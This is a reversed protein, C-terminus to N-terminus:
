DVRVRFSVTGSGGSAVSAITWTLTAGSLTGSNSASGAVYATGTPISDSIVVDTAGGTGTNNYTITYTIEEGQSAQAKDVTKTLTINPTQPIPGAGQPQITIQHNSGLQTTFYLTGKASSNLTQTQVVQGTDLNTNTITFQTNPKLDVILHKSTGTGSVNYIINENFGGATETKSFMVIRTDNVAVTLKAGTMNNSSADIRETLIMATNSSDTAQIVNLFPYDQDSRDNDTLYTSWGASQLKNVALNTPSLTKVFMKADGNIITNLNGLITPENVSKLIWKPYYTPKAVRIRDFVIVYDPRLFVINRAYNELLNISYSVSNYTDAAQGLSYVYDTTAEFKEIVGPGNRKSLQISDTSGNNVAITNYNITSGGIYAATAVNAPAALWQKKYIYFSNQDLHQHDTIGGKLGGSQFAIWTANQSWDSRAYIFGTGDGDFYSLPLEAINREPTSSNYWLLDQWKNYNYSVKNSSTNKLYWQAHESSVSGKFEGALLQMITREYDDLWGYSQSGTWDGTPLISDLKPQTNYIINRILAEPFGTDKFLNEGTATKLAQYYQLLFLYSAPSYDSGEFLWGGHKYYNLFQPKALNEYKSYRVLDFWEAARPNDGFSAIATLGGGIIRGYFFNNNSNDVAWRGRYEPGYFYYDAWDNLRTWIMQKEEKTFTNYFWDYAVAVIPPDYRAYYCPLYGGTPTKDDPRSANYVDWMITKAKQLYVDNGTVLYAIAYNYFGNQGSTYGDVANKLAAWEPANVDKKARLTQLIEPTLWIRPHAGIGRNSITAWDKDSLGSSNTVTLEIKYDGLADITFTPKNAGQIGTTNNPSINADRLNSTAPKSVFRWQYTLNESSEVTDSSKTGDLTILANTAGGQDDGADALPASSSYTVALKPRLSIDSYSSDVFVLIPYLTTSAKLLMGPNPETGNNIYQQILNTVDFNVWMDQFSDVTNITFISIPTPDFDGGPTTWNNTSNYKNWDATNDDWASQIVEHIALGIKGQSKLGADLGSYSKIYVSLIASNVEGPPISSLNFRILSRQNNWYSELSIGDYHSSRTGISADETGTYVKGNIEIGNQLVIIREAGQARVEQSKLSFNSNGLNSGAQNGTQSPNAWNGWGAWVAIASFVVLLSVLVILKTKRM